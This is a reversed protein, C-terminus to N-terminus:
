VAVGGVGVLDPRAEVEADVVGAWTSELREVAVSAQVPAVLGAGAVWWEVVGRECPWEWVAVDEEVVVVVVAHDHDVWVCVLDDPLVAVGALRAARRSVEVVGVADVECWRM